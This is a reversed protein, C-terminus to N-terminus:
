SNETFVIEISIHNWSITNEFTGTTSKFIATFNKWICLMFGSEGKYNFAHCYQCEKDISGIMILAHSSYDIESDYEFALSNLSTGTLARDGQM